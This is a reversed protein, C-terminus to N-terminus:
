DLGGVVMRTIEDQLAKDLAAQKMEAYRQEATKVPKYAAAPRAPPTNLFRSAPQKGPNTLVNYESESIQKDNGDFYQYEYNCGVRVLAKSAGGRMFKSSLSM